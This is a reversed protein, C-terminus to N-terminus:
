AVGVLRVKKLRRIYVNHADAIKFTIFKATEGVIGVVKTTGGFNWIMVDGIKFDQAPKATVTGIEQLQITTM